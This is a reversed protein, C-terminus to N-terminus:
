YFYPFLAKTKKIYAPYEKPFHKLLLTEEKKMKFLLFAVMGIFFITAFISQEVIIAGLGMLTIGTYIPHRVYKYVGVTILTHDKKLEVDSSWNDALTKRAAIAIILGIVTMVIGIMDLFTIPKQTTEFIHFGFASSHFLFRSILIILVVIWLLTWRFGPARWAIEKAPKVSKWHVIWYGLFILWCLLIFNSVTFM